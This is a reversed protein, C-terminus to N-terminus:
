VVATLAPSPLAGLGPESTDKRHSKGFILCSFMGEGQAAPQGVPMQIGWHYIFPALLRGGTLVLSYNLSAGTVDGAHSHLQPPKHVTSLGLPFDARDELGCVDITRKRTKSWINLHARLVSFGWFWAM